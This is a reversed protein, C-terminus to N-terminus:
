PGIGNLTRLLNVHVAQYFIPPMFPRTGGRMTRSSLDYMALGGADYLPLARHLTKRGALYLRGAPSSPAVSALDHLGLLTYMFGNLVYIPPRTPYEEYFPFRCDGFFCDRLGGRAVPRELPGLARVAARLYLRDGTSRYARSLESMAMGQALASGWPPRMTWGGESFRFRYLWRGDPAQHAVLWNAVRRVIRLKARNHRAAPGYAWLGYQAITVPNSQYRAVGVYHVRPLGNIMTPKFSGTVQMYFPGVYPGASSYRYGAPALLKVAAAAGPHGPFALILVVLAVTIGAVTIAVAPILRRVLLMPRDERLRSVIAGQRDDLGTRRNRRFGIPSGSPIRLRGERRVVRFQEVM